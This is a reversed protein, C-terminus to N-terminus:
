GHIGANARSSRLQEITNAEHLRAKPHTCRSTMDRGGGDGPAAYSGLLTAAPSRASGYVYFFLWIM